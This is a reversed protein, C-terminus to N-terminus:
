RVTKYFDLIIEVVKYYSNSSECSYTEASCSSNSAYRKSDLKKSRDHRYEVTRQECLSKKEVEHDISYKPSSQGSSVGSTTCDNNKLRDLTFISSSGDSNLLQCESNYNVATIAQPKALHKYDTSKISIEDKLKSKFKQKKQHKFKKDPKSFYIPCSTKSTPEDKDKFKPRFAHKKFTKWVQM